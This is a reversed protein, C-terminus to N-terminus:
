SPAGSRLREVLAVLEDGQEFLESGGPLPIWAIHCAMFEWHRLQELAHAGPEVALVAVAGWIKGIDRLREASVRTFGIKVPRRQRYLPGDLLEIYYV